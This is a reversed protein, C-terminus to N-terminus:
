MAAQQMMAQQMLMDKIRRHDDYRAQWIEERWSDVRGAWAELALMPRTYLERLDRDIDAFLTPPLAELRQTHDHLISGHLELPAAPPAYAPIDTYVRGDEPDAWTILTPQRFAFVREAGEHEPVFGLPEDVATDIVQLAQQQGEPVAEEGGGRKVLVRTRQVREREDDMGLSEDEGDEETDVDGLEDGRVSPQVQCLWRRQWEPQIVLPFPPSPM